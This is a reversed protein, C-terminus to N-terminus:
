VPENEETADNFDERLHLWEWDAATWYGHLLITSTIFLINKSNEVTKSYALCDDDRTVRERTM